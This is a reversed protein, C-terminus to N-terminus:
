EDGGCTLRVIRQDALNFDLWLNSCGGGKMARGEFRWRHEPDDPAAHVAIRPADGSKFGWYQRKLTKLNVALWPLGHEVASRDEAPLAALMQAPSKAARGVWDALYRETAAIDSPEPTWPTLGSPVTTSGGRDRTIAISFMGHWPSGAPVIAGEYGDGSVIRFVSPEGPSRQASSSGGTSESPRFVALATLVVLSLALMVVRGPRAAGGVQSSSKSRM